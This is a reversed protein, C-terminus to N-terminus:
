RPNTLALAIHALHHRGHWAYTTAAEAVTVDRQDGHHFYSAHRQEATLGALLAAFRAHLGELQALAPALPLNYDPLEATAAEDYGYVDARPAQTLARKVRLLAHAHSDACHHVLQRVTWSGPRYRATLQEPTLGEVRARLLQPFAAIEGRSTEFAQPAALAEAVTGIPYRLPDPM